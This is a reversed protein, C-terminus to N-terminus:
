RPREAGARGKETTQADANKKLQAYDKDLELLSADFVRLRAFVLRRVAWAIIAGLVLFIVALVVAAEVRHSEGVAMIIAIGVFAIALAAFLLATFSYLLSLVLRAAEEQLETGLLELRTHTLAVLNAALARLSGFLGPTQPEQGRM